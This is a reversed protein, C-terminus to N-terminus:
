RWAQFPKMSGIKKLERELATMNVAVEEEFSKFLHREKQAELKKNSEFRKEEEFVQQYVSGYEAWMDRAAAQAKELYAQISTYKERLDEWLNNVKAVHQHHLRQSSVRVGQEIRKMGELVRSELDKIMAEKKQMLKQRKSKAIQAMLMKLQTLSSDMEDEEGEQAHAEQQIMAMLAQQWPMGDCVGHDLMVDDDEEGGDLPRNNTCPIIMRETDDPSSSSRDNDYDDMLLMLAQQQGKSPGQQFMAPSAKYIKRKDGKIGGQSSHHQGHLTGLPAESKMLKLQPFPPLKANTWSLPMNAKYDQDKTKSLTVAISVQQNVLETDNKLVASVSYGDLKLADRSASGKTIFPMAQNITSPHRDHGCQYTLNGAAAAATTLNINPPPKLLLSSLGRGEGVALHCEQVMATQTVVADHVSKMNSFHLARRAAQIGEEEMKLDVEPTDLPFLGPAAAAATPSINLNLIRLQHEGAAKGRMRQHAQLQLNNHQLLYPQQQHGHQHTRETGLLEKDARNDRLTQCPVTLEPVEEGMMNGDPLMPSGAKAARGAGSNHERYASDAYAHHQKFSKASQDAEKLYPNVVEEQLHEQDIQNYLEQLESVQKSLVPTHEDLGTDPEPETRMRKVGRPRAVIVKCVANHSESHAKQQVQKSSLRGKKACNDAPIVIGECKLTEAKADATAKAHLPAVELAEEKSIPQKAWSTEKEKAPQQKKSGPRKVAKRQKGRDGEPRAKTLQHGHSIASDQLLHQNIKNSGAAAAAAQSALRDGTCVAEEDESDCNLDYASPAAKINTGEKIIEEAVGLMSPDMIPDTRKAEGPALVGVLCSSVKAASANQANTTPHPQSNIQSAVKQILNQDEGMLDMDDFAHEKQSSEAAREFKLGLNSSHHSNMPDLSVENTLGTASKALDPQTLNHNHHSPQPLKKKPAVPPKRTTAVKKVVMATEMVAPPLMSEDVPVQLPTTETNRSQQPVSALADAEQSQKQRKSYSLYESKEHLTTNKRIDPLVKVAPCDAAMVAASQKAHGGSSHNQPVQARFGPVISLATTALGDSSPLKVGYQPHAEPPAAQHQNGPDTTLVTLVAATGLKRRSSMTRLRDTTNRFVTCPQQQLGVLSSQQVLQVASTNPLTGGITCQVHTSHVASIHQHPALSQAGTISTHLHGTKIALDADGAPGVSRAIFDNTNSTRQPVADTMQISPINDVHANHANLAADKNATSHLARSAETSALIQDRTQLVLPKYMTIGVSMKRKKLMLRPMGSGTKTRGSGALPMKKGGGDRNGDDPQTIEEWLDASQSDELPVHGKQQGNPPSSQHQAAAIGLTHHSSDIVHGSYKKRNGEKIEVESNRVYDAIAKAERDEATVYLVFPRSPEALVPCLFGDPACSLTLSLTVHQQAQRGDQDTGKIAPQETALSTAVKVINRFPIDWVEPSPPESAEQNNCTDASAMVFVNISLKKDSTVDLWPAALQIKIPQSANIHHVRFSRVSALPGLQMNYMIVIRRLESVLDLGKVPKEMLEEFAKVAVSSSSGAQQRLVKDDGEDHRGHSTARATLVVDHIDDMGNRGLRYLVEVLDAQTAYDACTPLFCCLMSVLANKGGNEGCDGQQVAGAKLLSVNARSMTVLNLLLTASLRKIVKSSCTSMNKMLYLLSPLVDAGCLDKCNITPGGGRKFTVDSIDVMFQLLLALLEENEKKLTFAQLVQEECISFTKLLQGIAALGGNSVLLSAISPSIISPFLRIVASVAEALNPIHFLESAKMESLKKLRSSAANLVMRQQKADPIYSLVDFGKKSNELDPDDTPEMFCAAVPLSQGPCDKRLGQLRTEFEIKLAKMESALPVADDLNSDSLIAMLRSAFTGM